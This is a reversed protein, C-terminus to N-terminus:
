YCSTCTTETDVCTKCNNVCKNCQNKTSDKVYGDPCDKLCTNNYFYLLDGVGCTLCKNKNDTCSLCTSSCNDCSFNTANYFKGTACVSVCTEGQLKNLESTQYCSQCVSPKDAPCTSCPYDCPANLILGDTVQDIFYLNTGEVNMTRVIFSNTKETNYLPNVFGQLVITIGAADPTYELSFANKVIVRRASQEVTVTPSLNAGFGTVTATINSLVGIQSPYVM